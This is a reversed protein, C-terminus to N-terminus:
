RLGRALVLRKAVARAKRQRRTKAPQTFAEGHRRVFRPLEPAPQHLGVPGRFGMKRRSARSMRRPDIFDSQGVPRQQQLLALLQADEAAQATAVEMATPSM